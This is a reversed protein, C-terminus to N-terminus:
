ERIEEETYIYFTDDYWELAAIILSSVLLVMAMFFEFRANFAFALFVYWGIGLAELVLTVNLKVNMGLLKGLFAIRGILCFLFPLSFGILLFEIVSVAATIMLLKKM